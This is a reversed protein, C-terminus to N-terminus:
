TETFLKRTLELIIKYECNKRMTVLFIVIITRTTKKAKQKDLIQYQLSSGITNDTIILYKVIQIGTAVFYFSKLIWAVLHKNLIM